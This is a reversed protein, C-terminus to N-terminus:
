PQARKPIGADDLVSNNFNNKVKSQLEGQNKMDEFSRFSNPIAIPSHGDLPRTMLTVGSMDGKTVWYANDSIDEQTLGKTGELVTGYQSSIKDVERGLQDKIAQTDTDSYTGNKGERNIAYTVGNTDGFDVHKGISVKVAEDVADSASYNTGPPPNLYYYKALKSVANKTQNVLDLSDKSNNTSLAADTYSNLTDNSAINTDITKEDPAKGVNEFMKTYGPNDEKEKEKGQGKGDPISIANAIDLADSPNAAQVLGFGSPLPTDKLNHLQSFAQDSYPGFKQKVGNVLGLIETGSKANNFQSVLGQADASSMVAPAADPNMKQQLTLSRAIMSQNMQAARQNEDPSKGSLMATLVPSQGTSIDQTQRAMNQMPKDDQLTVSFPDQKIANIRSTIIPVLKKGVNDQPDDGLTLKNQQLEALSMSPLQARAQSVKVDDAVQQQFNAKFQNVKDMVELPNAGERMHPLFNLYFADNEEAPTMEHNPDQVQNLFDTKAQKTPYKNDMQTQIADIQKQADFKDQDTAVTRAAEAAYAPGFTGFAKNALGSINAEVQPDRQGTAQVQLSYGKATEAYSRIDQTTNEQQQRQLENIQEQRQPITLSTGLHGDAIWKATQGAGQQATATDIEAKDLEVHTQLLLNKSMATPILGKSTSLADSTSNRANDFWTTDPTGDAKQGVWAGQGNATTKINDITSQTSQVSWDTAAKAQLNLADGFLSSGLTNTRTMMLNKARDSVDPNNDLISQQYAGFQDKFTSAYDSGKSPDLEFAQKALAMNQQWDVAAKTSQQQAWLDDRKASIDDITSGVSDLGQALGALGRGGGFDDPTSRADVSVLRPNGERQYTPQDVAINGTPDTAM